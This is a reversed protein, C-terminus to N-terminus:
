PTFEVLMRMTEVKLGDEQMAKKNEDSQLFEHFRGMDAIELMLGVANVNNPDRFTRCKVGLKGFIEHRSGPGKKWANAWM